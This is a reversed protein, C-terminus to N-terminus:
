AKLCDLIVNVFHPDLIIFSDEYAGIIYYAEREVGGIMGRCSSHELMEVLQHFGEEEIYSNGFSGTLVVILPKEFDLYFCQNNGKPDDSLICFEDRSEDSNAFERLNEFNIFGSNCLGLDFPRPLEVERDKNLDFLTSNDDLSYVKECSLHALSLIATLPRWYYGARAGFERGGIRCINHISLKYDSSDLFLKIVPEVNIGLNYFRSIFNAFMM